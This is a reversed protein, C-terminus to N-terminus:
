HYTTYQMSLYEYIIRKACKYRSIPACEDCIFIGVPQCPVNPGKKEEDGIECSSRGISSITPDPKTRGLWDLRDPIRNLMRSVRSFSGSHISNVLQM